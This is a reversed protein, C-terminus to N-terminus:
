QRERNSLVFTVITGGAAGKRIDLSGNVVEARHRMIKLGMGEARRPEAAFDLGDNEVTMTLWGDESILNIKINNTKGHRIANTIAEQAIRYLNMAVSTDKTSVTEHCTLKCSIGFFQETNVALEGIASALGHKDLDIPHLGKALSRTQETAQIIREHTKEAYAVEEELSKDSLKERLVEIMLTIGTLHQGISDHLEQGTRQREREVINLLERELRRREAIDQQLQENIAKLGKEL